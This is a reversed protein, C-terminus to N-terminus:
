ITENLSDLIKNLENKNLIDFYNISNYSINDLDGRTNDFELRKLYFDSIFTDNPTLSVSDSTSVKESFAEGSDNVHFFGVYPTGDLTFAEGNTYKYYSM